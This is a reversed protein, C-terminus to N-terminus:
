EKFGHAKIYKMIQDHTRKILKYSKNADYKENERAISLLALLITTDFKSGKM